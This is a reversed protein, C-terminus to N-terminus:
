KVAVKKGNQIFVGKQAKSVRQGAVNYIPANVDDANISNIGTGEGITVTFAFEEADAISVKNVDAISIGYLKCDYVGDAAVTIPIYVIAGTNEYFSAVSMSYVSIMKDESGPIDQFGVTHDDMRDEDVTAQPKQKKNLKLALGEALHLKFSIATVNDATNNMGVALEFEETGADEKIPDVYLYNGAGAADQAIAAVGCLMAVITMYFKKM